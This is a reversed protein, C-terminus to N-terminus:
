IACDADSCRYLHFGMSATRCNKLRQLVKQVHLNRTDDFTAQQQQLLQQVTARPNTYSLM